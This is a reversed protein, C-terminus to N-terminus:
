DNPGLLERRDLLEHIAKLENLMELLIKRLELEIIGKDKEEM